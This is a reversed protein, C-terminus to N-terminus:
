RRTDNGKRTRLVEDVLPMAETCTAGSAARLAEISQQLTANQREAVKAAPGRELYRDRDELAYCLRQGDVFM